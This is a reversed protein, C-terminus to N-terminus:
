PKAGCPPPPAGGLCPPARLADRKELGDLIKQAEAKLVDRREIEDAEMRLRNAPTIYVAFADSSGAGVYNQLVEELDKTTPDSQNACAPCSLLLLAVSLIPMVPTGTM